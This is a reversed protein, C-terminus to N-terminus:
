STTSSNKRPTTPNPTSCNYTTITKAYKNPCTQAWFTYFTTSPSTCFFYWGQKALINNTWVMHPPAFNKWSRDGRGKNGLTGGQIKGIKWSLWATNTAQATADCSNLGKLTELITKTHVKFKMGELKLNLLHGQAILFNGGNSNITINKLISRATSAQTQDILKTEGMVGAGWTFIPVIDSNFLKIKTTININGKAISAIKPEAKNIAQNWQQNPSLQQNFYFGLLRIFDNTAVRSITHTSASDQIVVEELDSNVALFKSKPFNLSMHYEKFFHYVLETAKTAIEPNCFIILDDVWAQPYIKTTSNHINFYNWSTVTYHPAAVM